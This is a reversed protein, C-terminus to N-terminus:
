PNCIDSKQNGNFLRTLGTPSCLWSNKDIKVAYNRLDLFLYQRMYTINNLGSLDQLQPNQDLYLSETVMTINRLGNLNTLKNNSAYFYGIMTLNSLNDINTLNNNELRLDYIGTASLWGTSLTGLNLNSCNHQEGYVSAFGGQCTNNAPIIIPAPTNALMTNALVIDGAPATPTSLVKNVVSVGEIKAEEGYKYVLTNMASNDVQTGTGLNDLVIVGVGDKYADIAPLTGGNDTSKFNSGLPNTFSQSASLLTSVNLIFAITSLKIKNSM